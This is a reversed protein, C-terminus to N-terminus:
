LLTKNPLVIKESPVYLGMNGKTTYPKLMEEDTILLRANTDVNTNFQLGRIPNKGAIELNISPGTHALYVSLIRPNGNWEEEIVTDNCTIKKYFPQLQKIDYIYLRIVKIIYTPHLTPVDKEENLYKLQKHVFHSVGGIYHYTYELIGRPVKGISVSSDANPDTVSFQEVDMRALDPFIFKVYPESYKDIEFSVSLPRYLKCGEKILVRSILLRGM